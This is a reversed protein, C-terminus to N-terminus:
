RRVDIGTRRLTAAAHDADDDADNASQLIEPRVLVFMATENREEKVSKFASGVYPISSVIPVESTEAEVRIQSLGGLVVTQGNDCEATTTACTTDLGPYSEKGLQVSHAPDLRSLELQLSLRVTHDSILHPTLQVQTGYQRWELSTTGDKKPQPLLIKGGSAFTTSYGSTTTLTPEALVKAMNNKRLSDLFQAMDGDRDNTMSFGLAAGDPSTVPKGQLKALNYGLRRLKTMSVEYVKLHVLVQPANGTIEHLRKIEAQLSDIHAFLTQRERHAKQRVEAAEESKGAKELEDATGLLQKLREGTVDPQTKANDQPLPAVSQDEGYAAVSLAFVVFTFITKM